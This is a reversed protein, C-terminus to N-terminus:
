RRQWCTLLVIIMAFATFAMLPISVYGFTMFPAQSCSAESTASCFLSAAALRQIAYHYGALILGIASLVLAYVRIKLDKRFAAIGLIIALPYMCIRQFWCLECPEFHAIESFYLSGVMSLAALIFSFLLANKKFSANFPVKRAPLALASLSLLIFLQGCVTLVALVLLVVDVLM